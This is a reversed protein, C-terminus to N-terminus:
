FARAAARAQQQAEAIRSRRLDADVDMPQARIFTLDTVGIFEFLTRLHPELHDDAASDPSRYEGGSTTIVVLKRGAVLGEAGDPTVRFLYKPQVIIDLYQKLIYPIGFNWMPTSVLYGDASRFREIQLLIDQWTERMQGYLDKGALLVYKGDVRRATLAPLPEHFLDLTDAVWDPHSPHFEGLFAESVALTRSDEGRPTAIIHLLKKM